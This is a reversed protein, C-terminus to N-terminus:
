STFFSDATLQSLRTRCSLYPERNVPNGSPERGFRSKRRVAVCGTIEHGNEFAAKISRKAIRNATRSRAMLRFANESAVRNRIVQVTRKSRRKTGTMSVEEVHVLHGKAVM